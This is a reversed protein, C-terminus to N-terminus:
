DDRGKELALRYLDRYGAATDALTCGRLVTAPAAAAIRSLDDPHDLSWRIATALADADGPAVLVGDVGGTVREGLGGTDSAIVPVGAAVGESLVVSTGERDGDGAILSPVVLAYADRLLHAVELRGQAGLFRVRDTLGLQRTLAELGPRDPGDGAVVLSAGSVRALARLLVAVGKKEALRGVFLFQGKVPARQGVDARLAEVDVGMPVIRADGGLAAVDVRMAETGVGIATARRAVAHRLATFPQRRWAYVDVGHATAVFPTGTMAQLGAAFVGCPVLWHAHVLDARLRRNWRWAHVMFLTMLSPLEVVRWPEAHLNPLTAGDAVGEFRAPFYPFRVIDLRGLRARPMSGRVRPALVTFDFDDAMAEALELVFRPTADDARAPFTTTLVLVRPRLRSAAM